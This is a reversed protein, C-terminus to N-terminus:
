FVNFWRTLSIFYSNVIRPPGSVTSTGQMVRNYGGGFSFKRLRYDIHAHYLDGETRLGAGILQQLTGSSFKSYGGGASLRRFLLVSGNISYSRANFLLFDNTILSGVPTATLTGSYTLVATGSSQSYSGGASYRRWSLSSSYSEARNGDGDRATLASHSGRFGFGWSTQKNIRRRLTGGYSYSSTTAIIGLTQTNQAYNFDASTEWKGFNKSMGVNGVLAAGTNGDQTAM